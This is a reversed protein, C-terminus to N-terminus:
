LKTKHEVHFTGRENSVNFWLHLAYGGSRRYCPTYDTLDFLTDIIEIARLPLQFLDIEKGSSFSLHMLTAFAHRECTVIMRVGDPFDYVHNRQYPAGKGCLAEQVFRKAATSSDTWDEVVALTAPMRQRMQEISEPEFPLAEPYNM